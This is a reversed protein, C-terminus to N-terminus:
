AGRLRRRPSGRGHRDGCPLEASIANVALTLNWHVNLAHGIVAEIEATMADQESRLSDRYAVAAQNYAIGKKEFGADMTSPADLFISVRVVKNLDEEDMEVLEEPEGEEQGLKEVGLTDPDLEELLLAQEDASEDNEESLVPTEDEEIQEEATEEAFDAAFGSIGLSLIMAAVLLLSLLQKWKRSM